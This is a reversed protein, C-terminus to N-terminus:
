SLLVVAGDMAALEKARVTFKDTAKLGTEGEAKLFASLEKDSGVAYPIVVNPEIGTVLEHASKPDLTGDGVPVMVIGIGDLESRVEAPLKPNSLAGLVLIRMDDMGIVYMTNGVESMVDNYAAPTAYGHVTVAGVEYAGPGQIIFPEKDGHAATEAGNWDPDPLSVIVVDAGFKSVKHKSRQSPPNVAVTVPGASLKFCYGGVKQIVM